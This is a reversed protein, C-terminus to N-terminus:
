TDMQTLWQDISQSQTISEKLRNNEEELVRALTKLDAVEDKLQLIQEEKEQLIVSYAKKLENLLRNATAFIPSAEEGGQEHLRNTPEEMLNRHQAPVTTKQPPAVAPATRLHNQAVKNSRDNAKDNARIQHDRLSKNRLFYKGDEFISEVTNTKIRRRLTSVSVKYKGAYDSITLWDQTNM